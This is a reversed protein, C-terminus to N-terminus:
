LHCSILMKRPQLDIRAYHENVNECQRMAFLSQFISASDSDHLFCWRSVLPSLKM